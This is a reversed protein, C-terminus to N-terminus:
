SKGMKDLALYSVLQPNILLFLRASEWATPMGIKTGAQQQSFAGIAPCLSTGAAGAFQQVTNLIANGAIKDAPTLPELADTMVNSLSLGMGSMYLIYVLAIMGNNAHPILLAFLLQEILMLATGIMLPRRAGYRDLLRGGLPSMIAGAAGAPLVLIGATM